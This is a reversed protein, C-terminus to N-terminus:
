CYNNACMLSYQTKYIKWWYIQDARRKRRQFIYRQKVRPTEQWLAQRISLTSYSLPSYYKKMKTTGTITVINEKLTGHRLARWSIYLPDQSLFLKWDIPFFFNSLYSRSSTCTLLLSIEKRESFSYGPINRIHNWKDGEYYNNGPNWWWSKWAMYHRGTTESIRPPRPCVMGLWLFPLMTSTRLSTIGSLLSITVLIECVEFRCIALM